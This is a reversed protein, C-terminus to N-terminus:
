DTKGNFVEKTIKNIKSILKQQDIELARVREAVDRILAKIIRYEEKDKM